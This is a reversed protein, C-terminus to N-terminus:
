AHVPPTRGAWPLAGELQAALSLLLADEGLGATFMMGLPLTVGDYTGEALPLSISPRGTLNAVSTWPTYAMQAAFDAAPDDDNRLAGLTAPPQALTPSLVVDIGEWARAVERTIQQVAAMAEVVALGSVGRGGDRQSRTLPTLLHEAEAPVPASLAMTSWLVAFADWREAPFPSPAEVIEHGLGELVRATRRTADLVAPDVSADPAIVPDTMLGVRLRRPPTECAHLFTAGSRLDGPLPLTFTEGPWPRALIDLFAATDRVSRTLVGNTALGAGDVGDPGASVRGRSPKLGVLGCASAPIRISGGGDSGHAVPVVRAAVAAGAGGSSGGASRSLDWPTRAPPGIDPETYPPLGFEPTATKGVMVTGAERLLRVVGADTPAPDGPLVASGARFPVGEVMALDKVPVPVGLFPPLSTTDGSARAATLVRDAEVAQQRALDRSAAHAGAVFAGVRDGVDDIADLTSGLVEVASIEGARLASSLAIADLSHLSTRDM